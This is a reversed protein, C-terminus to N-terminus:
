LNGLLHEYRRDTLTRLFAVLAAIRTRDLPQGDQLRALALNGGIEPAGWHSGTEPNIDVEVNRVIYHNYFFLATELKRFIGNHMYPATVAVNRLSPTRFQGETDADFVQPNAALGRDIYHPALGNKSRVALNKPIGINHYRHDTFPENVTISNAQLLHCGMCNTLDSFFLRRGQEEADSLVYEGRLYRDYRSDFALFLASSQFAALAARLGAFAGHEDGFINPGFLNEFDGIYAPQERVRAIVSAVDPQGLELPNLLPEGAQAALDAARGDHFLGGRYDGEPTRSFTPVLAAYAISPANRDGLAAGDAGRSVAGRTGSDRGDSFARAPNHCTACSQSRRVSLNVDFFLKSGLAVLATAQVQDSASAPAALLATCLAIAKLLRQVARSGAPQARIARLRRQPARCYSAIARASRRTQACASWWSTV